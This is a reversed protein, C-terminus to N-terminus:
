RAFQRGVAELYGYGHVTDPLLCHDESWENWSSLFILPPKTKHEAV